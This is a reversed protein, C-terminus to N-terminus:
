LLLRPRVDLYADVGRRDGGIGCEGGLEISAHGVARVVDLVQHECVVVAGRSPHSPRPPKLQGGTPPDDELLRVDDPLTHPLRGHGPRSHPLAIFWSVAVTTRGVDHVA